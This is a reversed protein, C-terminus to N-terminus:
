WVSLGVGLRLTWTIPPVEHIVFAPEEFVFSRRVLPFHPGGQVDIRAIDGADFAARALAGLSAWPVTVQKVDSITEGLRGEARIVGAEAGLCPGLSLWPTPRLFAPCADLRGIGRTFLAGGPGVDFAGTTTIEAALRLSPRLGSGLHLEVFPGGGLLARPAVGL